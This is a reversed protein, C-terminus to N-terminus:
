SRKSTGREKEGAIADIAPYFAGTATLLALLVLVGGGGDARYGGDFDGAGGPPRRRLGPVIPELSARRCGRTASGDGDPTTPWPRAGRAVLHHKAAASRPSKIASVRAELPVTWRGDLAAVTGAPSRDLCRRDGEDLLQQASAPHVDRGCLELRGTPRSALEHHGSSRKELRAAFAVADAGVAVLSWRGPHRAPRSDSVATRLGLTSALALVPYMAMPMLLTVFLTRRDRVFELLDRQAVAPIGRWRRSPIGARDM